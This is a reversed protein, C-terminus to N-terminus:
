QLEFTIRVNGNGLAASLGTIDDIRGLRTYSYATPFSKYFLVLTNAGYMMLDGTQITGPNSTDTPLKTSLDYFKENGNLETMNITMPLLAKFATATASNSLTVIFTNSGIIIRIKSEMNEDNNAINGNNETSSNDSAIDRKNCSAFVTAISFTLLIILFTQKM